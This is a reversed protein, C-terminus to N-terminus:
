LVAPELQCRLRYFATAARPASLAIPLGTGLMRGAGEVVVWPASPAAAMEVAYTRQFREYGPGQAAKSDFILGVGDATPVIRLIPGTDPANPDSGAIFEERDSLGDADTDTAGDAITLDGLLNQEWADPLDDVDEDLSNWAVEPSLPSEVGQEDVATVAFYYTRGDELDAIQVTSSAQVALVRTYRGPETGYHVHYDVPTNLPAGDMRTSPPDWSLSIEVAQAVGINLLLLSVAVLRTASQYWTHERIAIGTHKM